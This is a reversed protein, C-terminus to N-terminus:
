RLTENSTRTCSGASTVSLHDALDSVLAASCVSRLDGCIPVDFTVWGSSPVQIPLGPQKAAKSYAYVPSYHARRAESM